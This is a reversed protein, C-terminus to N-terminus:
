GAWIHITDASVISYAFPAFLMYVTVVILTMTYTTHTCQPSYSMSAIVQMRMQLIAQGALFIECDNQEFAQCSILNEGYM